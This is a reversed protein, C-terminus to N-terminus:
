VRLGVGVSEGGRESRKECVFVEDGLGSFQSHTLLKVRMRVCVRVRGCVCM